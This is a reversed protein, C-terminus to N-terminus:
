SRRKARTRTRSFWRTLRRRTKSTGNAGSGSFRNLSTKWGASARASWRLVERLDFIVPLPIVDGRSSDRPTPVFMKKRLDYSIRFRDDLQAGPHLANALGTIRQQGDVVWLADALQPAEILLAGLHM